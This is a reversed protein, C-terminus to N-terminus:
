DVGDKGVSSGLASILSIGTGIYYAIRHQYLLAHVLAAVGGLIALWIITTFATLKAGRIKAARISGVVQCFGWVGIFYAVLGVCISGLM